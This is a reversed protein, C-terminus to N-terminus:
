TRNISGLYKRLLARSGATRFVRRPELRFLRSSQQRTVPYEELIPNPLPQRGDM